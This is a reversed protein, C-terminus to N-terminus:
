EGKSPITYAQLEEVAVMVASLREREITLERENYMIEKNLEDLQQKKNHCMVALTACTAMVALYKWM